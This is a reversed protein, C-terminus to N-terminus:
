KSEGLDLLLELKWEPDTTRMAVLNGTRSAQLDKRQSLQYLLSSTNVATQTVAATASYNNLDASHPNSTFLIHFTEEQNKGNESALNNGTLLFTGDHQVDSIYVKQCTKLLDNGNVSFRLLRSSKSSRQGANQATQLLPSAQINQPLEVTTDVLSNEQLVEIAEIKEKSETSKDVKQEKQSNKNVQREKGVFAPNTTSGPMYFGSGLTPASVSPMSPSTISVGSIQAFAIHALSGVTVALLLKKCIRM